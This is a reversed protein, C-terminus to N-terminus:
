GWRLKMSIVVLALGLTLGNAVIIPWANLLVGYVLWCAVGTVFMVYMPLSVDRVSRTRWIQMVQPVFSMTTCVAGVTGIAEIVIM